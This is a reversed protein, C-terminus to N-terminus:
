DKGIGECLSVGVGVDVGEGVGVGVDPWFFISKNGSSRGPSIKKGIWGAAAKNKKKIEYNSKVM